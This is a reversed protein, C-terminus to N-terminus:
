PGCTRWALCLGCLTTLSALSLTKAHQLDGHDLFLDGHKCVVFRAITPSWWIDHLPRFSIITQCWIFTKDSLLIATMRVDEWPSLPASRKLVGAGKGSRHRAHDWPRNSLVARHIRSPSGAGADGVHRIRNWAAPDSRRSGAHPARTGSGNTSPSERITGNEASATRNSVTVREPRLERLLTDVHRHDAIEETVM